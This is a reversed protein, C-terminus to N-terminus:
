NEGNAGSQLTQSDMMNNKATFIRLGIGASSSLEFGGGRESGRECGKQGGVGNSVLYNDGAFLV